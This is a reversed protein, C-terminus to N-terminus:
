IYKAQTYTFKRSWSYIIYAGVTSVVVRYVSFLSSVNILVCVHGFSNNTLFVVFFVIRASALFYEFEHLVVCIDAYKIQAFIPSTPPSEEFLSPQPSFSTRSLLTEFMFQGCRQFPSSRHSNILLRFVGWNLSINSFIVKLLYLKFNVLQFM